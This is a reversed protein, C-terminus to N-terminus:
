VIKNEFSVLDTLWIVFALMQGAYIIPYDEKM